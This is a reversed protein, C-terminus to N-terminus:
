RPLDEEDGAVYWPMRTMPFMERSKAVLHCLMRHALHGAHAIENELDTDSDTGASRISWRATRVALIVCGAVLLAGGLKSYDVEKSYGAPEPM